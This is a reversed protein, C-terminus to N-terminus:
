GFVVLVVSCSWRCRVSRLLANSTRCERLGGWSLLSVLLLVVHCRTCARARVLAHVHHGAVAHSSRVAPLSYPLPFPALAAHRRTGGCVKEHHKLPGGEAGDTERRTPRDVALAAAPKEGALDPAKPPPLRPCFRM